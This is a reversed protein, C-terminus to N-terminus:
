PDRVQGAVDFGRGGLEVVDVDVVHVIKGVDHLLIALSSFVFDRAGFGDDFLVDAFKKGPLGADFEDSQNLEANVTARLDRRTGASAGRLLETVEAVLVVIADFDQHVLQEFFEEDLGGLSQAAFAFEGCFEFRRLGGRNTGRRGSFATFCRRMPVRPLRSALHCASNTRM